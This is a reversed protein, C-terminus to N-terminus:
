FSFLASYNKSGSIMNNILPEKGGFLYENVMKKWDYSYNVLRDEFFDVFARQYEKKGLYDRWDEKSIEGPADQWPELSKAEEEYVATLQESSAGLLYASGM